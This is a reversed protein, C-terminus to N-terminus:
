IRIIFCAYKRQSKGGKEAKAKAKEEKSQRREMGYREEKRGNQGGRKKNNVM